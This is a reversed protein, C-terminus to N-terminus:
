YLVLAKQSKQISGSPWAPKRAPGSIFNEPNMDLAMICYKEPPIMNFLISDDFVM